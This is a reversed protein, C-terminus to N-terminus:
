GQIFIDARRNADEGQPVSEASAPQTDGVAEVLVKAAPIGDRILERAIANARAQSREFNWVSQRALSMTTKGSSAHGVVRIYGQGGQAEFASAAARVQAKAEANLITTDHRFFIVAAPVTGTANAYVSPALSATQLADFNAVVDGSMKEPGGEGMAVKGHRSRKTGAPASQAVATEDTNAPTTQPVAPAPGIAATEQYRALIPQPVFQAVTADLQPASSPHFGLANDSVSQPQAVAPVAPLAAPAATTAAPVPSQATAVHTPAANDSSNTSPLTGPASSQPSPTASPTHEGTSPASSAPATENAALDEAASPPPAPPPPAAAAETGGRLADASYQARSRDQALSDAVDKQEDATSPAAPRDPITSLDPTQGNDATASQDASQNSAQTDDGGIWGTPDAWDPISSCASAGAAVVLVVSFRLFFRSVTEPKLTM